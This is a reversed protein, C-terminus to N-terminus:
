ALEPKIRNMVWIASLAMLPSLLFGALMGLTLNLSVNPSIPAEAIVAEDHIDVGSDAMKHRLNMELLKLKMTKLYEQDTEFVRKADLYDLLDLNRRVAEEKTETNSQTVTPPKDDLIIGKTKVIIPLIRRSEEVKDEQNRVEKTLEYLASEQERKDTEMRYSKYSRAVEMAIDRADVKNIHQVRISVLDTTKIQQTVVIMKLIRIATEKDVSWQNGLQLTDVVRGLINRSLIKELETEFRSKSDVDAVAARNGSPKSTRLEVVTESEYKKPMVSTVVAAVLLGVVSGVALMM